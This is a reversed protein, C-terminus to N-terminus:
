YNGRQESGSNNNWAFSNMMRDNLVSTARRWEGECIASEASSEAAELRFTMMSLYSTADIDSKSHQRRNIGNM